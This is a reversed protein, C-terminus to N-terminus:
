KKDSSPSTSAPAAEKSESKAEAKSEVPASEKAEASKGGSKESALDTVYFGPGKFIIRSPHFVKKTAHGCKECAPAASGVSQWIDFRHGCDPCSYEYTPV